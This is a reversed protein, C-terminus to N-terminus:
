PRGARKYLEANKQVTELDHVARLQAQDWEVDLESLGWQGSAGRSLRLPPGAGPGRSCLAASGGEPRVQPDGTGLRASFAAAYREAYLRQFLARGDDADAAYLRALAAPREAPAYDSEIIQKMKRHNKQVTFFAWQTPRPLTDFIASADGEAIGRVLQECAADASSLRTCGAGALAVVALAAPAFSRMCRGVRDRLQVASM